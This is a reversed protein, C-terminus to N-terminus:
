RVPVIELWYGDPDEIFYIGMGKNEFCICGMSEHLDHAAKIDDARFALHSENEGLEYPQPHDRLWTLELNWQSSGDALFALKFSGDPAEVTRVPELGLARKYFALSHDLDTVNFNNHVMTFQM